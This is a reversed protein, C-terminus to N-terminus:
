SWFKQLLTLWLGLYPYYFYPIVLFEVIIYIMWTNNKIRKFMSLLSPSSLPSLDFKYYFLLEAIFLHLLISLLIYPKFDDMRATIPSSTPISHYHIPISISEILLLIPCLLKPFYDKRLVPIQKKLEEADISSFKICIYM